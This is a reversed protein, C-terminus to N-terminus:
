HLIIKIEQSDFLEKLAIIRCAKMARGYKKNCFFEAEEYTLFVDRQINGNSNVWIVLWEGQISITRTPVKAEQLKTFPRTDFLEQHLTQTITRARQIYTKTHSKSHM